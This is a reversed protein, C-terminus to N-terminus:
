SACRPPLRPKRAIVHLRNALLSPARAEVARYLPSSGASVYRRVGPIESFLSGGHGGVGVDTFGTGSLMTKLSWRTFFRIHPDRWSQKVSLDDGFPNWRGLVALEGRRRWYAANPVTAIMLGGPRLVRCIEQAALHPAFLHELVEICTAVDFSDDDFPLSTADDILQADLGAAQAMSIAPGSVDVGVYQAAHERLWIGSTAGDGCGIDLCVADEPVNREYLARLAPSIRGLPRFGEESWYHDYYQQINM